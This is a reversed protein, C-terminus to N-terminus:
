CVICRHSRTAQNMCQSFSNQCTCSVLAVSLDLLGYLWPSCHKLGGLNSSLDCARVHHTHHIDQDESSIHHQSRIPLLKGALIIQVCCSLISTIWLLPQNKCVNACACYSLHSALFSSFVLIFKKVVCLCCVFSSSLVIFMDLHLICSKKVVCCM